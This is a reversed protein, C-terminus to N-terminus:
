RFLLPVFHLLDRRWSRWNHGDGSDYYTYPVGARDLASMLNQASRLAMDSAGAGIWFLRCGAQAVPAVAADAPSATDAQATGPGRRSDMIGSGM